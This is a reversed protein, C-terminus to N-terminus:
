NTQVSQAQERRIRRVRLRDRFWDKLLLADFQTVTLKSAGLIVRRKALMRPIGRLQAFRAEIWWKASGRSLMVVFSLVLTVFMPLLYRLLIPAPFNKIRMWLLNRTAYYVMTRSHRGISASGKHWVRAGPALEIDYGAHRVRLSLDVDEFLLFFDEDFGGVVDLVDRRFAAAGACASTVSRKCVLLPDHLSLGRYNWVPGASYIADGASDIQEPHAYDLMLCALAGANSQRAALALQALCDPALRTDNNLFFIWSGLCHPLGFNNGGAFGLNAPALLLRVQPYNSRIFAVSADHSANDVIIVEFNQESQALLSDLCEELHCLGNYNVILISFLPEESMATM